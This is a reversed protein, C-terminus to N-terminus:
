KIISLDGAVKAESGDILTYNVLYVFVDPNMKKGRYTGDWGFSPSTHPVDIQNFVM